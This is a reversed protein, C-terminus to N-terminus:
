EAQACASRPLGNVAVPSRGAAKQKGALVAALGDLSYASSSYTALLTPSPSHALIGPLDMAVTVAADKRLDPTTDGYGVLHVVTGGKAVVPVGQKILAKALLDQSTQRGGSASVTVPGTVLPGGDCRGKLVTVAAAALPAVTSKSAATALQDAGPQPTATVAQKLDLLRRVSARLRDRPLQGSKLADLIGQYAAVPDPPMLLLDNGALLARVAAEGAPWRMAPSMNLADTVVVGQYGLKERLLGTLVKASFSAPVGPDLAQVDLHGSMVLKAGAAIGARFPVLDVQDLDAQTQDLRPLDSHSDAAPRGHGPFHKLTAAVGASQLGRVAAAAQDAVREPEDGFSRSGIVGSAGQVDADPAFDVNVGMAALETGAVKWAAETLEPQHAAGAALASPLVTVGSKVRTVVGFEQDTAILLPQPSAQRLGATFARVQAADVINATNKATPDGAEFGVLVVGGLHLKKILEAPTDVGALQ